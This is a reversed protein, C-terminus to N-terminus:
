GELGAGLLEAADAVTYLGASDDLGLDRPKPPRGRGRKFRRRVARQAQVEAWSTRLLEKFADNSLLPTSTREGLLLPDDTL